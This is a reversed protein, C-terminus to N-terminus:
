ELGVADATLAARAYLRIAATALPRNQCQALPRQFRLSTAMEVLVIEACRRNSHATGATRSVGLGLGPGQGPRQASGAGEQGKKSGGGRRGGKGEEGRGQNGVSHMRHREEQETTKHSTYAVHAIVIRLTHAAALVHAASHPICKLRRSLPRRVTCMRPIPPRTCPPGLAPCRMTISHVVAAFPVLQVDRRRGEM